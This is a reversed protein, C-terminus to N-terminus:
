RALLKALIGRHAVKKEEETHIEELKKETTVTTMSLMGLGDISRSLQLEMLVLGMLQHAREYAGWELLIMIEEFACVYEVREWRKINGLAILNCFMTAFDKFKEKEIESINPALLFEAFVTGIEDPTIEIIPERSKEFEKVRQEVM